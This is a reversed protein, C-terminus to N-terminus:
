PRTYYNDICEFYLPQGTVSHLFDSHLAKDAWRLTACWGKLVAAMGTYHKTHPDFYCDSPAAAGLRQGNWRLLADATPGAALAKLQRRQAGLGPVQPGLLTALDAANLHKTQEINLAGALVSGLAQRLWPQPPTLVDSVTRLADAFLLIGAHECWVTQGM